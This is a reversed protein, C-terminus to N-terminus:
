LKVKTFILPWLYMACFGMIAYRLWDFLATSPFVQKLGLRLGIVLAFGLLLRLLKRIATGDTKFNLTYTDLALGIMAGAGLGIIKLTGTTYNLLLGGCSLAVAIAMVLLKHKYFKNFILYAIRAIVFGLLAGAIVDTPYHVGLYIRSTMVALTALLCLLSFLPKKKCIALGGFINAATQSHGSPFSFSSSLSVTDVLAGDVQVYRLDAYDPNLFPRPRRVIDKLIGNVSAAAYISLLLYEGTKKNICWYIGFVILLAFAEEGFFTFFIFVKDMVAGGIGYLSQVAQMVMHDFGM